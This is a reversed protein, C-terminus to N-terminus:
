VRVKIVGRVLVVRVGQAHQGLRAAHDLRHWFGRLLGGQRRADDGRGHEAGPGLVQLGREFPPAESNSVLILSLNTHGGPRKEAGTM